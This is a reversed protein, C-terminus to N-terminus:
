GKFKEYLAIYNNLMQNISFLSQIRARGEMGMKVALDDNKLLKLIKEAMIEPSRVPVLFGTVRDVVLEKTGPCFTAVVPKGIAMYEMISNSIGETLTSLVGIDFTNIISEINKQNGLLKIKDKHKPSIIREYAQSNGAGMCMFIVNDLSSLVIQAAKIFTEYDKLNTYSAVMGVIKSNSVDEKQKLLKIRDFNFGNYIVQCKYNPASYSHLGARSNSIIKDSFPFTISHGLLSKKVITPADTVQNNLLPINLILKTPIAYIAVMNGWVHIIDPKFRKAIKYFKFFVSPDKKTFKRETYYIKINLDFIETFHVQKKTLVLEIEYEPFITKIGKLLEVLRREKGGALLSEIFFLIKM